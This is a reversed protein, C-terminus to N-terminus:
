RGKTRRAAGAKGGRASKESSARSRAVLAKENQAAKLRAAAKGPPTPAVRDAAPARTGSPRKGAVVDGLWGAAIESVQEWVDESARGASKLLKFAHDGGEIWRLEANRMRGVAQALSEAPALADRTGSVFLTPVRIAALHQDRVRDPRGPAHLPYALLLLGSAISGRSALHSAMRGGMSRGGIFLPGGGAQARLFDIAATVTRELVEERDPVKKGCERYPFNFRLMAYGRARLFVQVFTLMPDDLGGGAGHALLVSPTRGAEFADPAMYIGSVAASGPVPISVKKQRSPM